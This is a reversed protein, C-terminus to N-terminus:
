LKNLLTSFSWLTNIMRNYDMRVPGVLAVRGVRRNGITLDGTIISSERLLDEEMESGIMVEPSDTGKEKWLVKEMQEEQALFQMLNKLKDMDQYDPFNMLQTLGHTILDLKSLRNMSSIVYPKLVDLCEVIDDGISDAEIMMAEWRIQAPISDDTVCYKNLLIEVAQAIEATIPKYMYVVYSEPNMKEGIFVIVITNSDVFALRIHKITEDYTYDTLLVITHGTIDSLLKVSDKLVQETEHRHVSLHNKIAEAQKGTIVNKRNIFYDVYYRYAKDSPIRGSSTHQKNLMGLEELDSMENRITASSVGLDYQKSLTRSGVPEAHKVYSDIIAKLVKLKRDDLM